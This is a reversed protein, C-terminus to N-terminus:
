SDHMASSSAADTCRGGMSARTEGVCYRLRWVREGRRLTTRERRSEVGTPNERTFKWEGTRNRYGLALAEGSELEAMAALAVEFVDSAFHLEGGPRLLEAMTVLLGTEVVRRKHHRRKFWPDPFLLHFRDVSGHAFVRDLDVNMNVYAFDLNERGKARRRVRDVVAERIELGVVWTEPRREALAFAFEGDACGLEVELPSREMGRPRALPRARPELYHLALPNVHQRVPRM